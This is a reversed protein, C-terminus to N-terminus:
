LAYLRSLAIHGGINAPMIQSCKLKERKCKMFSWKSIRYGVRDNGTIESCLGSQLFHTCSFNLVPFQSRIVNAMPTNEPLKIDDVRLPTYPCVLPEENTLENKPPNMSTKPALNASPQLVPWPILPM